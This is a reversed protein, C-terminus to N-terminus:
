NSSSTAAENWDLNYIMLVRIWLALNKLCLHPPFRLIYLHLPPPPNFSASDESTMQRPSGPLRTSNGNLYISRKWTARTIIERHPYRTVPRVFDIRKKESFLVWIRIRSTGLFPSPSVVVAVLTDPRCRGFVTTFVARGITRTYVSKKKILVLLNQGLRTTRLNKCLKLRWQEWIKRTETMNIICKPMTM